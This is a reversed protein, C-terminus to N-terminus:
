PTSPPLVRMSGRQLTAGTSGHLLSIARQDWVLNTGAGGLTVGGLGDVIIAGQVSSSGGINVVSGNSAQKNGMYILGYFKM